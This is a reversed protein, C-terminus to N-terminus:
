SSKDFNFKELTNQRRPDVPIRRQPMTKISSMCEGIAWVGTDNVWGVLQGCYESDWGYADCGDYAYGVSWAFHDFAESCRDALVACNQVLKKYKTVLANRNMKIDKVVSLSNFSKASSISSIKTGAVLSGSLWFICILSFMLTLLRKRM